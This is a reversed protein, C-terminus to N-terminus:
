RKRGLVMTWYTGWETGPQQVCAVAVDTYAPEMMNVCHDPSDLWGQIVEDVSTDGGAINEAVTKWNYRSASARQSVTSGTPSRHDFYNRKAMDLSHSSAAVELAPDWKLPTAPGMPQGGCRRARARAENVRRLAEASLAHIGCSGMVPAAGM